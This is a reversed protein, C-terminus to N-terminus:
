CHPCYPSVDRGFNNSNNQYPNNSTAIAGTTYSSLEVVNARVPAVQRIQNALRVGTAAPVVASGVAFASRAPTIEDTTVAYAIWSAAGLLIWPLFEGETEVMERESLAIVDITHNSQGFLMNADLEALASNAHVTQSLGGFSILLLMFATTMKKM